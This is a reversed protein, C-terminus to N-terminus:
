ITCNTFRLFFWTACCKFRWRSSCFLFFFFIVEPVAGNRYEQLRVGARCLERVCQPTACVCVCVALRQHKKMLTHTSCSHSDGASLGLYWIPQVAAGVTIAAIFCGCQAVCVCVCLLSRFLMPTPNPPPPLLNPPVVQHHIYFPTMSSLFSVFFFLFAKFM